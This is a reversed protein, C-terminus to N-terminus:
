LGDFHFAMSSKLHGNHSTSFSDMFYRSMFNLISKVEIMFIFHFIIAHFIEIRFIDKDVEDRGWLSPKYWTKNLSLGKLCEFHTGYTM